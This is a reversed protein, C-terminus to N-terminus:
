QTLEQCLLNDSDCEFSYDDNDYVFEVSNQNDLYVKYTDFSLKSWAGIKQENSAKIPNELITCFLYENNDDLTPLCHTQGQLIMKNKYNNIAERILLVDSKIKTINASQLTDNMKPVAIVLIISIIAITFVIEILSFAKKNKPTM